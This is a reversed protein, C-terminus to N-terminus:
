QVHLRAKSNILRDRFESEWVTIDEKDINEEAIKHNITDAVDPLINEGKNETRTPIEWKDVLTGDTQFLGCKVTTGGVDIGFCYSGM